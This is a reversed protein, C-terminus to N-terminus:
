MSLLMPHVPAVVFAPHGYSGAVFTGFSETCRSWTHCPHSPASVGCVPNGSAVHGLEHNRAEGNGASVNGIVASGTVFRSLTISPVMPLECCRSQLPFKTEFRSLWSARTMWCYM